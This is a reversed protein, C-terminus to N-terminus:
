EDRLGGRKLASLGLEINRKVVYVSLGMINSITSYTMGFKNRMTVANRQNQPLDRLANELREHAEKSLLMEEPGPSSDVFDEQHSPALARFCRLHIPPRSALRYAVVAAYAVPDTLAGPRVSSLRVAGEQVLDDVQKVRARRFIEVMKRLQGQTPYELPSSEPMAFCRPLHFSARFESDSPPSPDSSEGLSAGRGAFAGHSKGSHSKGSIKLVGCGQGVEESRHCWSLREFETRPMAFPLRDASRPCRWFLERRIGESHRRM